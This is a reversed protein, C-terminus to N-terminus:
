LAGGSGAGGRPGGPLWDGGGPEPFRWIHAFATAIPGSRAPSASAPPGGASARSAENSRLAPLSALPRGPGASSGSRPAGGLPSGPPEKPYRAWRALGGRLPGRCAGRVAVVSAQAPCRPPLQPSPPASSERADVLTAEAQAPATHVGLPCTRGREGSTCSGAPPPPCESGPPAAAPLRALMQRYPSAVETEQRFPLSGAQGWM